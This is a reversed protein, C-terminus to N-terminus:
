MFTSFSFQLPVCSLTICLKCEWLLFMNDAFM